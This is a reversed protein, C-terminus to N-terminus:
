RIQPLTQEPLRGSNHQHWLRHKRPSLSDATCLAYCCVVPLSGFWRGSLVRQDVPNPKLAEIGRIDYTCDTGISVYFFLLFPCLSRQTLHPLRSALREKQLSLATYCRM